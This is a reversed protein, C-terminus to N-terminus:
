VYAASSIYYVATTAVRKWTVMRTIKLGILNRQFLSVLVTSAITPDAPSSDMQVLASTSVDVNLGGDDAFLIQSADLMILRAGVSASVIVPIGWISGGRAGLTQQNTARALAVANAPTMLIVANEADPNVAYFQTILVQMDTNANAQSTGASATTGAGNTISAPSVGASVAVTPDTFQVDLFQACGAIMEERLAGVAAPSSLEALEQSVAIIGGCKTAPVQVTAYDSKTVPTPAGQGVWGYAGGTTQAAISVNAPVERLNPIRGLLTRPRLLKVFADALPKVPSLPSAWTADSTTAAAVAAKTCLDANLSRPYTTAFNRLALTRALTAPRDAFKTQLAVLRVFDNAQSLTLQEQTWGGLREITEM